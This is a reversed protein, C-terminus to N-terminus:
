ANFERSISFKNNVYVLLSWWIRDFQEAEQINLIM